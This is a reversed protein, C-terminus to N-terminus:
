IGRPHLTKGGLAVAVVAVAALVLLDASLGAQSTQYGHFAHQLAGIGYYAPSFYAIVAEVSGLWNVPGFPGSIFFLPLTSAISLPIAAQGRRVLNGLVVGLGAFATMLLLAVGLVELPHAPLSGVLAVVLIVVILGSVANILLAALVKGV